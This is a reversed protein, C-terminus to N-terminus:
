PYHDPLDNEYLVGDGGGLNAVAWAVAEPRHAVARAHARGSRAGALLARRNTRGVVLIDSLRAAAFAALERNEEAQRRGLEVMGPTVLATRGAVSAALREVAARAGAPNSNYTDDIVLVGGETRGEVGRHPPRPLGNLREGIRAAPVGLAHAIGVACAVNMPFVGGPTLRGVEEAGLRVVLVEGEPLVSVEVDRSAASCRVLRPGPRGEVASRVLRDDWNAVVTGAGELIEAKARAIAEISGFRELHVPGVATIVSVDPPIWRCLDAIEGPGYTGMEAIFVEVGPDLGENIARALGLRNNFSAPSAVVHRTGAALHRAYEKTSTKGYSGTIAVVTAAAGRLRRAAREVFAGSLRRELPATAALGLDVAQPVVLAAAVAGATLSGLAFGVGAAAAPSLAAAAALRRMRGTWALKATRGRLSLGLPWSVLGAAGLLSAYPWWPTAMLAGATAWGFALNAASCHLWRWEFRSVSWPLYHERQGVRLWRLGAAAAAALLVWPAAASV